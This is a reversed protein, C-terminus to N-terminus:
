KVRYGAYANYAQPGDAAGWFAFEDPVWRRLDGLLPQLVRRDRRGQVQIRMDVLCHLAVQKGRGIRM